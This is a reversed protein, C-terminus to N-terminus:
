TQLPKDFSKRNLAEVLMDAFDEDEESPNFLGNADPNAPIPDLWVDLQKPQQNNQKSNYEQM